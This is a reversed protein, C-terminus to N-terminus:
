KKKSAPKKKLTSKKKKAKKLCEPCLDEDKHKTACKKCLDCNCHDCVFYTENKECISCLDDNEEETPNEEKWAVKEVWFVWLLFILVVLGERFFFTHWIDFADTGYSSVIKALLSLRIINAIYIIPLGALIGKLRKKVSVAPLACVLACFALASKWGVCDAIIDIQVNKPQTTIFISTDSVLEVSTGLLKALYYTHKTVFIRFFEFDYNCSRIYYFPLALIIFRIIFDLIFGYKKQEDSLEKSYHKSLFQVLFSDM